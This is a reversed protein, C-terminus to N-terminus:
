CLLKFMPTSEGEVAAADDRVYGCREYFGFADAAVHSRVERCGHKRAFQEALTLLTKGQGNRQHDESIAVRRFWAVRDKVDVRIVGIPQGAQFLILPYNGPQFEDPHHDDYAGVEGRNEFLVRRRIEHYARWEEENGPARLNHASEHNM